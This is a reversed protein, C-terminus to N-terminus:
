WQPCDLSSSQPVARPDGMRMRQATVRSRIEESRGSPHYTAMVVPYYEKGYGKEFLELAFDLSIDEECEELQVVRRIENSGERYILVPLGYDECVRNEVEREIQAHIDDIVQERQSETLAM